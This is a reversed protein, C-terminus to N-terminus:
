KNTQSLKFFAKKGITIPIIPTKRNLLYTYLMLSPRSIIVSVKELIPIKVVKKTESVKNPKTGGSIKIAQDPFVSLGINFM